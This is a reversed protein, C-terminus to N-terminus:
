GNPLANPAHEITNGVYPSEVSGINITIGGAGFPAAAEKEAGYRRKNHSKVVFEKHKLRLKARELDELTDTGDAIRGMLCVEFESAIEQAEEFRAQRDKDKKIWRMFRARDIGRPDNKILSVWDEGVTVVDLFREFFIDFVQQELQLQERTRPYKQLRVATQDLSEHEEREEQTYGSLWDPLPAPTTSAPTNRLQKLEMHHDADVTSVPIDSVPVETVKFDPALLSKRAPFTMTDM